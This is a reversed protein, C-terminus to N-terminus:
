VKGAVLSVPHLYIIIKRSNRSSFICNSVPLSTMQAAVKRLHIEDTNTPEVVVARNEAYGVLVVRIERVNTYVSEQNWAAAFPLFFPKRM